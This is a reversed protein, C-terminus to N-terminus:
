ELIISDLWIGDLGSGPKVKPTKKTTAKWDLSPPRRQRGSQRNPSPMQDVRKVVRAM